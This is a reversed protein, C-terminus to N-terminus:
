PRLDVEESEPQTGIIWLPEKAPRKTKIMITNLGSRGIVTELLSALLFVYRFRWGAM